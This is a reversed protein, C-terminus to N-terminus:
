RTLKPRGPGSSPRRQQDIYQAIISLPAGGCSAAFYSPSWLHGNMSHQNVWYTFEYRLRRASVGKLSNVLKSLRVTPPPRQDAFVHQPLYKDTDSALNSQHSVPIPQERSLLLSGEHPFTV